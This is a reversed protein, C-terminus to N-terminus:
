ALMETDLRLDTDTPIMRVHSPRIGAIRAAKEISHHSRASAYIVGGDFDEGLQSRATVVATLNAISGGSFLM